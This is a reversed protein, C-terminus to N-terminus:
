FILRYVVYAIVAVCAWIEAGMLVGMYIGRSTRMPDQDEQDTPTM